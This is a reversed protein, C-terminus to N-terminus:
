TLVENRFAWGVMGARNGTGIIETMRQLHAKVTLPSIELWQGIEKNTLGESIGQLVQVERETLEPRRAM